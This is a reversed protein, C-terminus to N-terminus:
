SKVPNASFRVPSTVNSLLLAASHVIGDTDRGARRTNFWGIGTRETTPVPM